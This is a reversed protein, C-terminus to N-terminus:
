GDDRRNLGAQGEGLALMACGKRRVQAHSRGEAEERAGKCPREELGGKLGGKLVATCSSLSFNM